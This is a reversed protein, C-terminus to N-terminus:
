RRSALAAACCAIAAAIWLTITSTEGALRLSVASVLAGATQGILRCQAQMGAAAGARDLPGTRLM